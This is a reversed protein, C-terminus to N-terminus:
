QYKDYVIAVIRLTSIGAEAIARILSNMNRFTSM